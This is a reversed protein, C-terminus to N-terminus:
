FNLSPRVQPGRNLFPSFRDCPLEGGRGSCIALFPLQAAAAESADDPLVEFFM